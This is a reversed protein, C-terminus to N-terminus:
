RLLAAGKHERVMVDVTFSRDKHADGTYMRKVQHEDDSSDNRRSKRGM